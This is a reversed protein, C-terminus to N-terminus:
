EESRGPKKVAKMINGLHPAIESFPATDRHTRVVESFLKLGVGFPLATDAPFDERAKIKGIIGFLDEHTHIEFQLPAEPVNGDDHSLEEVIIRYTHNKM